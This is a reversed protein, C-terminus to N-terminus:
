MNIHESTSFDPILVVQIEGVDVSQKENEEQPVFGFLEVIADATFNGFIVDGKIYEHSEGPFAPRYTKFTVLIPVDDLPTAVFTITIEGTDYDIISPSLLDSSIFSGSGDDFAQISGAIITVTGPRIGGIMQIDFSLIQGLNGSFTDYIGDSEGLLATYETTDLAKLKVFDKSLFVSPDATTTTDAPYFSFLPM